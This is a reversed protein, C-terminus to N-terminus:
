LDEVLHFPRHKEPCFHFSCSDQEPGEITPPADQDIWCVWRMENVLFMQPQCDLQSQPVELFGGTSPTNQAPAPAPEPDPPAYFDSPWNRDSGQFRPAYFPKRKPKPLKELLGKFVPEGIADSMDEEEEEVVPPPPVWPEPKPLMRVAEMCMEMGQIVGYVIGLTAAATALFMAIILSAVLLKNLM